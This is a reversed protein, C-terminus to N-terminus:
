VDKGGALLVKEGNALTTAFLYHPGGDGLKLRKRLADATMPFNRVALSARDIGTLMAKAKKGFVAWDDVDFIRGPFGEM